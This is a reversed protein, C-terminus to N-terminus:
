KKFDKKHFSDYNHMQIWSNKATRESSSCQAQEFQESNRLCICREVCHCGYSGTWSTGIHRLFGRCWSCSLLRMGHARWPKTRHLATSHNHCYSKNLDERHASCEPLDSTGSALLTHFGKCTHTYTYLHHPGIRVHHSTSHFSACKDGAKGLWVRQKQHAVIAWRSYLFSTLSGTCTTVPSGKEQASSVKDALLGIYRSCRTWTTRLIQREAYIFETTLICM